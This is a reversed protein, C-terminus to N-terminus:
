EDDEDDLYGALPQQGGFAMPDGVMGFGPGHVNHMPTVGARQQALADKLKERQRKRKARESKALANEAFMALTGAYIEMVLDLQDPRLDRKRAIDQLKGITADTDAFAAARIEDTMFESIQPHLLGFPM